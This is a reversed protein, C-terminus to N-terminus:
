FLEGHSGTRTLVLVLVHDDMKYILLWDPSIHCEHYGSYGDSLIHDYLAKPLKEGNALLAVIDHLKRVDKGQKLIRKYDKQFRASPRVDYKM